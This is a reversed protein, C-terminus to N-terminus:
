WLDGDRWDCILPIHTQLPETHGHPTLLYIRDADDYTDVIMGSPDSAQTHGTWLQWGRHAYFDAASDVANLAGLQHRQRIVTEAQAMVAGGLGRGQHDARVAVGEVYGTDLARGAHRLTRPVVAAFAVLTQNEIVFLHVGEVAHLWDHSRFGSGFATRVLSEAAELQASTLEGPEAVLVEVM